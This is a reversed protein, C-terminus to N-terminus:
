KRISEIMKNIDELSFRRHKTPTVFYRIKGADAWHRVSQTSVGMMKAAKGISIFESM